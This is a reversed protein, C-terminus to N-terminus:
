VVKIKNRDVPARGYQFSHWAKSVVDLDDRLFWCLEFMLPRNMKPINLGLYVVSPSHNPITQPLTKVHVLLFVKEWENDIPIM